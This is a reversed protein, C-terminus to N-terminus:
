TDYVVASTLIDCIVLKLDENSLPTFQPELLYLFKWQKNNRSLGTIMVDM